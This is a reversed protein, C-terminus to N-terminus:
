QPRQQQQRQQQLGIAEQVKDEAVKRSIVGLAEIIQKDKMYKQVDRPSRLLRRLPSGPKNAGAPPVQLAPPTPTPTPAKGTKTWSMKEAAAIARPSKARPSLVRMPATPEIAGKTETDVDLSAPDPAPTSSVSWPPRPKWRKRSSGVDPWVQETFKQQQLEEKRFIQTLFASYQVRLYAARDIPQIEKEAKPM